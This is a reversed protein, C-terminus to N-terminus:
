DFSVEFDDTQPELSEIWARVFGIPVLYLLLVPSSSLDNDLVFAIGALVLTVPVLVYVFILYLETLPAYVFALPDTPSKERYSQDAIFHRWVRSLQFLVIGAITLGVSVPLDSGLNYSTGVSRMIAGIIVANFVARFWVFKINRWYVPPLLDIPQFPTPDADWLDGDRGEVPKPTFLTVPFFVLQIIAIEVLYVVAIEVLNWEFVVVGTILAFNLALGALFDSSERLVGFVTDTTATWDHESM